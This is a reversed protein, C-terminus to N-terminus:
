QSWVYGGLVMMIGVGIAISAAILIAELMRAIGSVFEGGIIDRLSNTIAMGPVLLMLCGITISQFNQILTLKQFLITLSSLSMSALLTTVITNVELYEMSWIIFYLVFGICGGLVCEALGGGFFVTFAAASLGYGLFVLHMKLPTDKIKQINTEISENSLSHQCVDRVLNNLAYVNDLNIRNQRTRKTITYVEHNQLTISLSFHSPLAFVEIEKYGYAQLMRQLSEEVRYVEAGHKLLLRGIESINNFLRYQEM